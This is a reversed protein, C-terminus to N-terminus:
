FSIQTGAPNSQTCENLATQQTNCQPAVNQSSVPPPPVTSGLTGDGFNYKDWVTKSRIRPLVYAKNMIIIILLVILIISVIYLSAKSFLGYLSLYYLGIFILIVIFTIQLIFITNLINNYKYEGFQNIRSYFANDDKEEETPAQM